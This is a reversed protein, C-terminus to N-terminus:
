SMESIEPIRASVCDSGWAEMIEERASELEAALQKLNVADSSRIKMDVIKNLAQSLSAFYKFPTWSEVIDGSEDDKRSVVKCLEYNLSDSRLLITENKVKFQLNM